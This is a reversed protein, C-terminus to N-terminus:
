VYISRQSFYGSIEKDIKLIKKAFEHTSYSLHLFFYNIL